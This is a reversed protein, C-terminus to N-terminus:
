FNTEYFQSLAKKYIKNHPSLKSALTYYRIAEAFFYQKQLIFGKAFATEAPATVPVFAVLEAIRQRYSSDDWLRIYNRGCGNGEQDTIQWYYEGPSFQKLVYEIQIPRQNDLITKQIAAGDMPTDYLALIARSFHSSWLIPLSGSHYNITDSQLSMQVDSCGRSVAGVNKMYKGPDTEPKGHPHAFEDWVFKFYASSYGAKGASCQGLLDTVRYTGKKNLQIVKYDSCILVVAANEPLLIYDNIFLKDGKKLGPKGNRTLKGKTFYVVFSVDAAFASCCVSTLLLLFILKTRM